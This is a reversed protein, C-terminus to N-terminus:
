YKQISFLMRDLAISLDLVTIICVKKVTNIHHAFRRSRIVAVRATLAQQVHLVNGCESLKQSIDLTVRHQLLHVKWATLALLVNEVLQLHHVSPRMTQVSTVETVTAAPLPSGRLTVTPEERVHSVTM